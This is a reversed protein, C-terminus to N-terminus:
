KLSSHEASRSISPTDQNGVPSTAVISASPKTCIVSRPLSMILDPPSHILEIARSCMASDCGATCSAATIATGCVGASCADGTPCATGCAGCNKPDIMLDACTTGCRSM